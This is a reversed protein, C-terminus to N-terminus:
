RELDLKYIYYERIGYMELKIESKVVLYIEM